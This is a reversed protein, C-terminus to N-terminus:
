SARIAREVKVQKIKKADVSVVTFIYDKYPIHEGSRPFRSFLELLLGGLSESEGRVKDFLTTDIDMVKCFDNLLTKGEFQFTHENLKRYSLQEEDFEDNIEGVIEEMIDELTILGSTGGYEDVVIAMHVRKEQFDYLLDDIKKNEPIFYSAHVLTQWAFYEDRDIYPLLDKIYLIGEIKDITDRYVPIRSYGNKNIKDMLEHFDIEIDFATIDVRSQMIQKAYTNGFNVIGKLIEKEEATTDTGATIELAQNLEDTAIKYGKRNMKSEVTDSVGVLMWAVPKLVKYLFGIFYVTRKAFSLNNQQAFVKPILEAFCVIVPTLILVIALNNPLDPSALRWFLYGSLAVFSINVFNNSILLTALLFKPSELIDVIKREAKDESTRCRTRDDASLSFFSAEAGSIVASILLLILLIFIIICNM